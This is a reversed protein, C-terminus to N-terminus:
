WGQDGVVSVRMGGKEGAAADFIGALRNLSVAWRAVPFELSWHPQSTCPRFAQIVRRSCSSILFTAHPLWAVLSM